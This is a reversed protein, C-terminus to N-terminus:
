QILTIFFFMINVLSKLTHYIVMMIVHFSIMLEICPQMEKFYVVIDGIGASVMELILIILPVHIVVNVTDTTVINLYVPMPQALVDVMEMIMIDRVAHIVVIEMDMMLTHKIKVIIKYVIVPKM